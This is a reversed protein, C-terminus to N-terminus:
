ISVGARREEGVERWGAACPWGRAAGHGAAAAHARRWQRAGRV